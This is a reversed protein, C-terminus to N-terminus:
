VLDYKGTLYTYFELNLRRSEELVNRFIHAENLLEDTLNGDWCYTPPYKFSLLGSKFPICIVKRELLTAWYVGHYTNTVIYECSALFRLKDELSNGSNDAVPFGNSNDTTMLTARKHNYFGISNTPKVDRYSFFTNNMCSACPVYQFKQPTSFVRVGVENAFNFYDGYLDPASSDLLKTSDSYTDVGAGWFISTQPNSAKIRGLNPLFFDSGIGGGGIIVTDSKEIAFSPDLIDGIAAPKFPFYRFPPCWWDGVNTDDARFLFKLQGMM